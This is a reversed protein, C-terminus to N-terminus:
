AQSSEALEAQDGLSQLTRHNKIGKLRLGFVVNEFISKPFPNPRQFVMGVRQRLDAVDERRHMINKGFVKFETNTNEM